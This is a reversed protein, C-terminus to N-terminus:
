LGVNQLRIRYSQIMHSLLIVYVTCIQTEGPNSTYATEFIAGLSDMSIPGNASSSNSETSARISAGGEPQESKSSPGATTSQGGDVNGRFSAGSPVHLINNSTRALNLTLSPVKRQNEM